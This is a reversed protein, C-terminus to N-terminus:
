PDPAGGIPLETEQLMPTITLTLAEDYNLLDSPM